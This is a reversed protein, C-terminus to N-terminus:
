AVTLPKFVFDLLTQGIRNEAQEISVENAKARAMKVARELVEVQDLLESKKGPTILSSWEQELIHGVPVDYAKLATQAPHEKTAPYLVIVEDKKQTFKKRVERAVYIGFERDTAPRFGKAPDQTPIAVVVQKLEKVRHELQLLSTAPMNKVLIEGDETVLDARASMNAVDVQYGIDIGKALHKTLFSVEKVVTTQIDKQETVEAGLPNAVGEVTPQFSKRTEEFLHRKSHLTAKLDTMIKTAQGKLNDQIALLVHLKPM